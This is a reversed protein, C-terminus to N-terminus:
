DIRRIARTGFFRPAFEQGTPCSPAVASWNLNAAGRMANELTGVDIGVCLAPIKTYASLPRCRRLDLEKIFKAFSLKDMMRRHLRSTRRRLWSESVEDPDDEFVRSSALPLRFTRAVGKEIMWCNSVLNVPKSKKSMLAYYVLKEHSTPQHAEEFESGLGGYEEPIHLSRVSQALQDKCFTRIMRKSFGSLLAQKCTLSQDKTRSVLKFKGCIQKQPVAEKGQSGVDRVYLQSDISVFDKSLYNKGPSLTLGVLSAIRKWSNFEKRTVVAAIDDGHIKARVCNLDRHQAKCITFANILCLIPFSLLSGMLQGNEQLVPDLQASPPYMVLHKGGEYEIWKALRENGLQRFHYALQRIVVQSCHFNIEDTAASYDGSLLYEGPGLKFDDLKFDPTWCPEFVKWNKLQKFMEMQLSKLCYTDAEPCTIIRAKLSEVVCSARVMSNRNEPPSNKFEIGLQMGPFDSITQFWRPKFHSMRECYTDFATEVISDVAEKRPLTWGQEWQSYGNSAVGGQSKMVFTKKRIHSDWRPVAPQIMRQKKIGFFSGTKEVYTEVIAEQGTGFVYTPSIRRGFADPEQWYQSKLNNASSLANSTLILFKSTFKRGKEHLHAMPVLYDVDSCLNILEKIPEQMKEKGLSLFGIDDVVTILQNRYGDWHDTAASRTYTFTRFSEEDVIPYGFKKGILECIKRVTFSKGTSPPGELHIVVPDIRHSPDEYAHARPVLQPQLYGRTGGQSRTTELTAHQNPLRTREQYSEAVKLTFPFCFDELSELINRPVHKPKLGMSERHKSFAEKRFDSPVPPALSKCQMLGWLTKLKRTLRETTTVRSTINKRIYGKPFLEQIEIKSIEPVVPYEQGTFRSFNWVLIGKFVKPLDKIPVSQLHKELRDLVGKPEKGFFRFYWVALCKAYGSLQQHKKEEEKLASSVRAGRRNNKVVM